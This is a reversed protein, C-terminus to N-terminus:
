SRFEQEITMTMDILGGRQFSPSWDTGIVPTTTIVLTAPDQGDPGPLQILFPTTGAHRTLFEDVEQYESASLAALGLRYSKRINNIGARSTQRYGDGFSNQRVVPKKEGSSGPAFCPVFTLADEFVELAM